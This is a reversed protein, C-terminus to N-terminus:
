RIRIFIKEVLSIFQKLNAIGAVTNAKAASVEEQSSSVLLIPDERVSPSIEM